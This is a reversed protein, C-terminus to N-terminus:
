VQGAMVWAVPRHLLWGLMTSMAHPWSAIGAFDWTAGLYSGPLPQPLTRKHIQSPGLKCESRVTSSKKWISIMFARKIWQTSSLLSLNFTKKIYQLMGHCCIRGPCWWLLISSVISIATFPTWYADDLIGIHVGHGLVMVLIYIALPECKEVNDKRGMWTAQCLRGFVPPVHRAFGLLVPCHWAPFMPSIKTLSQKMIERDIKLSYLNRNNWEQFSCLISELGLVTQHGLVASGSNAGCHYWKLHCDECGFESKETKRPGNVPNRATSVIQTVNM